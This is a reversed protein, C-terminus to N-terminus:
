RSIKKKTLGLMVLKVINKEPNPSGYKDLDLFYIEEIPDWEEHESYLFLVQFPV